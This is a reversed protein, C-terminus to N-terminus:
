TCYVAVRAKAFSQNWFGMAILAARESWMIRFEVYRRGHASSFASFGCGLMM